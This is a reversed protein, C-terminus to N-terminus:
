MLPFTKDFTIAFTAAIARKGDVGSTPVKTPGKKEM